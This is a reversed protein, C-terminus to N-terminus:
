LKRQHHNTLHDKEKDDDQQNDKMNSWKIDSKSDM